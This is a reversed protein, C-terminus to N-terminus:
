GAVEIKIPQINAPKPKPVANVGALAVVNMVGVVTVKKGKLSALDGLPAIVKTQILKKLEDGVYQYETQGPADAFKFGLYDRVVTGNIATTTPVLVPTSPDVGDVKLRLDDATSEDQVTGTATVAFVYSTESPTVAGYKAAAAKIDTQVAPLVEGLPKAKGALETQAKNFLDTAAATPDFQKPGVNAVEAATLFRTNLLMIVILILVAGAGILRNRTPSSGSIQM